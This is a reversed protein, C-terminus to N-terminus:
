TQEKVDGVFAFSLGCFILMRHGVIPMVREGLQQYRQYQGYGYGYGDGDGDGYGDGDGDGDEYGYEYRPFAPLCEVVCRSIGQEEFWDGLIGTHLIKPVPLLLKTFYM